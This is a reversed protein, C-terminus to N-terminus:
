TQTKNKKNQRGLQGNADTNWILMHSKPILQITEEVNDWHQKREKASYGKHPAYTTLITIPTTAKESQLAVTTIRRDVRKITSIYPPTIDQHILTAVGGQHLGKGTQKCTGTRKAGSTIIKYNYNTFSHNRPIHTEQISAIHIKQQTLQNIIDHQIANTTFFDPNLSAINLTNTGPQHNITTYRKKTTNFNKPKHKYMKQQKQQQKQPNYTPTKTAKQRNHTTPQNRPKYQQATQNKTNKNYALCM